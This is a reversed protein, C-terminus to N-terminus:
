GGTLLSLLIWNGQGVTVLHVSKTAISRDNNKGDAERSSKSASATMTTTKKKAAQKRKRGFESDMSMPDIVTM